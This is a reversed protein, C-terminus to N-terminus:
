WEFRIMLKPTFRLHAQELYDLQPISSPKNTIFFSRSYINNQNYINYLSLGFVAKWTDTNKPLYNYVVSADLQHNFPLNGTNFENNLSRIALDVDMGMNMQREIVEFNEILSYPQGSSIKWGLSFGFADVQWTNALRLIHRQDVPSPFNNDFFSNFRYDSRAFSYSIWSRFNGWRKKILLDLGRSLSNGVHNKDSFDEDFSNAITSLGMVKKHYVQLDLLWDSKDYVIGLFLQDATLIPAKKEGIFSWVPINLNSNDGNIEILQSLFQHYRGAQIQFNWSDSLNYWLRLRPEFYVDGTLEFHSWRLGLEGGIKKQTPTELTTYFAHVMAKEKQTHNARTRENRLRRIAYDIDYQNLQYGFNIKMKTDFSYNNMWHFQNEQIRSRKNGQNSRGVGANSLHYSYNYNYNSHTGLFRTQFRDSWQHNWSFSIGNNQLNLTDTQRYRSDANLILDKFHNNGYFGALTLEDKESIKYNVKLNSDFFNFDEKIKFDQLVENAALGQLLEGQSIRETISKYTPSRWIGALSHRMSFVVAAKNKLLSVNGNLFANIMNSGATFKSSRIRQDYSKLDVVGAIRGGRAANFGSKYVAVEEIIYPNFASIMGFYHAAHYIPIDEWLILNQDASSGRISLNSASGDPSTVGPLFQITELIEPEAQGPLVGVQNPKIQTYTGNDNLSVGDTLYDTVVVFNESFSTYELTIPQCNADFFYGALVRKEEYGVYSVVLTDTKVVPLLIEFYGKQDTSVGHSTGPLFVSAFALPLQSTQDIVTGCLKTKKQVSQDGEVDEKFQEKLKIIINGQITEFRLPANVLIQSLFDELPLPISPLDIKINEVDEMRYSLLLQYDNELISLVNDLSREEGEIHILMDQSYAAGSILLFFFLIIKNM